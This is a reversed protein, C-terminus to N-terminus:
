RLRAGILAVIEADERLLSYVGGAPAFVVDDIACELIAEGQDGIRGRVAVAADHSEDDVLIAHQVFGVQAWLRQADRFCDLGEVGVDAKLLGPSLSDLRCRIWSSQWRGSESFFPRCCVLCRLSRRAMPSAAARQLENYM